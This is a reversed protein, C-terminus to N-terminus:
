RLYHCYFYCRHCYFTFLIFTIIWPHITLPLSPPHYLNTTCKNYLITVCWPRLVRSNLPSPEDTPTLQHGSHTWWQMAFYEMKYECKETIPFQQKKRGRPYLYAILLAGGPYTRQYNNLLLMNQTSLKPTNFIQGLDM